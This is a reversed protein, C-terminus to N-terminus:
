LGSLRADGPAFRVIRPEAFAFGRRPAHEGLYELLVGLLHRHSVVLVHRGRALEPAIRERWCPRLRAAVDVLSEARPLRQPDISAYRPDRLPSRPDSEPLLPPRARARYRCRLVRLPGHRYAAKWPTLGQLSGYHRENLRWCPRIPLGGQGREALAIEATHIARGLMSTFCVDVPRGAAHLRRGAQAAELRGRASLAADEWGTFRLARNARSQGHRLLTLVAMPQEQSLPDDEFEQFPRVTVAHM